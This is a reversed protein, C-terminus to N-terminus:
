QTHYARLIKSSGKDIEVIPTGGLTGEPLDYSVEWKSGLDRVVPKSQTRDFDPYHTAVYEEAIRLVDSETTTMPKEAALSCAVAVLSALLWFCARRIPQVNIEMNM